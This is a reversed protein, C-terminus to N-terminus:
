GQHIAKCAGYNLRINGIGQSDPDIVMELSALDAMNLTVNGQCQGGADAEGKHQEISLTTLLHAFKNAM